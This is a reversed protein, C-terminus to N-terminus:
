IQKTNKDNIDKAGMENKVFNMTNYKYLIWVCVDPPTVAMSFYLRTYISLFMEFWSTMMADHSRRVDYACLRWHRRHATARDRQSQLRDRTM